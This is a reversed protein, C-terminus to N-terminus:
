SRISVPCDRYIPQKKRLKLLPVLLCIWKDVPGKEPAGEFSSLKKNGEPPDNNTDLIPINDDLQPDNGFELKRAESKNVHEALEASSTGEFWSVTTTGRDVENMREKPALAGQSM